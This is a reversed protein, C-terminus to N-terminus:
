SECEWKRIFQTDAIFDRRPRFLVSGRRRQHPFRMRSARESAALFSEREGDPASEDLMFPVFANLPDEWL